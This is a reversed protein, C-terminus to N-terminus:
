RLYEDVRAADERRRRAPWADAAVHAHEGVALPADRRRVAVEASAHAVHLGLHIEGSRVDGRRRGDRAVDASRLLQERRRGRLSAIMIRLPVACLYPLFTSVSTMM